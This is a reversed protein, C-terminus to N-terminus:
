KWHDKGCIACTRDELMVSERGRKKPGHWGCGGNDDPCEDTMIEVVVPAKPRDDWSAPMALLMALCCRAHALHSLGTEADLDEGDNFALVHRLCADVLRSYALGGRWNDKGYKSAGFAMVLAEQEIAERPILGIPPKGSDHKIGKLSPIEDLSDVRNSEQM